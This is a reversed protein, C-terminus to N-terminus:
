DLNFAMAQVLPITITAQTGGTNAVFGLGLILSTTTSNLSSVTGSFLAGTGTTVGFGTASAASQKPCISWYFSATGAGVATWTLQVDLILDDTAATQTGITQTVEATDASTGNTGMFIVIQFTGTNNADKTMRVRWLFTSGVVIGNVPVTPVNLNSNTIYYKTAAVTLQSQAATNFNVVGSPFQTKTIAGAMGGLSIYGSINPPSNTDNQFTVNTGGSPAAPTTNSFNVTQSM